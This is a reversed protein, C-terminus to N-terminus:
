QRYTLSDTQRDMRTYSHRDTLGQVADYRETNRDKLSPINTIRDEKNRDIRRDKQRGTQCDTDKCDTHRMGLHKFTELLSFIQILIM